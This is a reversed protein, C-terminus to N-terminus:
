VECGRRWEWYRYAMVGGEEEERESEETCVSVFGHRTMEEEFVRVEEWHTRRLPAMFHFAGAGTDRRAGRALFREVVRPLLRGHEIEYLLDSGVLVDYTGGPLSSPSNIDRWDLKSVTVLPASFANEQVNRSVTALVNPHYDSLTVSRAGLKACLLGVLGTGTGLELLDHTHLNPILNTQAIKKALMPAAGWTKFGIDDGVVGPEHIRVAINSNNIDGPPAPFYWTRTMAGSGSRGSMHAMLNAAREMVEEQDGGADENEHTVAWEGAVVKVLWPVAARRLRRMDDPTITADKDPNTGDADNMTYTYREYSLKILSELDALTATISALSSSSVRTILTQNVLCDILNGPASTSETGQMSPM